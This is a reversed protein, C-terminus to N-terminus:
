LPLLPPINVADERWYFPGAGAIWTMRSRSPQGPKPAMRFTLAMAAVPSVLSGLGLRHCWCLERFCIRPSPAEPNPIMRPESILFMTQLHAHAVPIWSVGVLFALPRLKVIRGVELKSHSRPCVAKGRQDKGESGILSLQPFLDSIRLSCEASTTLATKPTLPAQAESKWRNRWAESAFPARLEGLGSMGVEGKWGENQGIVSSGSAHEYQSIPLFAVKSHQTTVFISFTNLPRPLTSVLAELFHLSKSNSVESRQSEGAFLGAPSTQM